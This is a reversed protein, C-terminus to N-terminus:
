SIPGTRLYRLFNLTKFVAGSSAKKIIQIKTGFDLVVNLRADKKPRISNSTWPMPCPITFPSTDSYWQDGTLSTQVLRNQLYFSFHGTTMCSIGFWDLLINFTSHYKGRKSKRARLTLTVTVYVKKDSISTRCCITSHEDRAPKRAPFDLIEPDFRLM